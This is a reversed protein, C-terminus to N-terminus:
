DSTDEYDLGGAPEAIGLGDGVTAITSAVNFGLYSFDIVVYPNDIADQNDGKIVNYQYSIAGDSLAPDTIEVILSVPKGEETEGVLAANPPDSAFSDTGEGWRKVLEALPMTSAARHPRDTFVIINQDAGKLTLTTGAFTAKDAHQVFLFKEPANEDESTQAVVMTALTGAVVATGLIRVPTKM